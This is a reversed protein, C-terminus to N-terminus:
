PAGPPQYRGWPAAPPQTPCLIPQSWFNWFSVLACPFSCPKWCTSPFTNKTALSYQRIRAHEDWTQQLHDEFPVFINAYVNATSDEFIAMSIVRPFPLADAFLQIKWRGERVSVYGSMAGSFWHNSSSLKKPRAVVRCCCHRGIWDKLIRLTLLFCHIWQSRHPM